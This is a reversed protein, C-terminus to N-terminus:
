SEQVEVTIVETQLFTQTYQFLNELVLKRPPEEQTPTEPAGNEFPFNVSKCLGLLNKSIESFGKFFRKEKGTCFIQRKNLPALRKIKKPWM